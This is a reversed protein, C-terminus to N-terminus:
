IGRFWRDVEEADPNSGTAPRFYGYVARTGSRSPDFTDHVTGDIVASVHRSLRVIIRGDPLEGPRVHMRVGTGIGMVPVWEWGADALYREYVARRVGTRPHSRRGRGTPVRRPELDRGLRALDDYVQRYPLDTAIAIARTVCDGTSGRFGARTRGGDDYVWPAGDDAVELPKFGRDTMGMAEDHVSM